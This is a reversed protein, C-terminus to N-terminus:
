KGDSLDVFLHESLCVNTIFNTVRGAGM